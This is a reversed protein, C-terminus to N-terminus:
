DSMETVERKFTDLRNELEKTERERFSVKEQTKLLDERLSQNEDVLTAFDVKVTERDRRLVELERAAEEIIFRSDSREMQTINLKARL